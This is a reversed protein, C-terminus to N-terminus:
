ILDLSICIIKRIEEPFDFFPIVREWSREWVDAVAQHRPYKLRFARLPAVRVRREVERGGILERGPLTISEIM